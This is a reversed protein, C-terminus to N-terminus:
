YVLVEENTFVNKAYVFNAIQEDVINEVNLLQGTYYFEDDFAPQVVHFAVLKKQIRSELDYVWLSPKKGDNEITNWGDEDVLDEFLVCRHNYWGNSYKALCNKCKVFDCKHKGFLGCKECEKEQIRVPVVLEQCTHGGSTVVLCSHCFKHRRSNLKACYFQQPSSVNVFHNQEMDYYVYLAFKPKRNIGLVTHDYESGIFTYNRSDKEHPMLCTLRFKPYAITFDKLRNLGVSTAWGLETQLNCAHEALLNQRQNYNINRDLVGKMAIVLAVALCSVPGTDTRFEKWALDLNNFWWKPKKVSGGAGQRFVNPDFTFTWTLQGIELETESQQIRELLDTISAENLNELRGVALTSYNVDNTTVTLYGSVNSRARDENWNTHRMLQYVITSRLSRAYENVLASEDDPLSAASLVPTMTIFHLNGNQFSSSVNFVLNPSRTDTLPNYNIRVMRDRVPDYRFSQRPYEQDERQRRM